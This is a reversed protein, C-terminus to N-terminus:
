YHCNFCNVTANNKRHCDVCFGMTFQYVSAVRDMAAVNGHCQGCDVGNALHMQHTFEVHEPLINVRVWPIPENNRYYTHIQWVPPFNTAIVNHCLLCKAVAPMGASRSQDATYHCFFCNIGRETVHIRHSFPIPQAPGVRYPFVLNYIIFALAGLAALTLALAM